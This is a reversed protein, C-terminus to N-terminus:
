ADPQLWTHSGSLRDALSRGGLAPLALLLPLGALAVTLLGALWRLATQGFTLPGGDAGRSLVRALAMGPTRGWFALPMVSYVFSFVLVFLALAPLDDARWRVGLLFAGLIAAATVVLLVGGDLLSAALRHTLAAPVAAPRQRPETDDDATDATTGGAPEGAEVDAWSATEDGGGGPREPGKVDTRSSTGASTGASAGSTPAKAPPQATDEPAAPESEMEWFALEERAAQSGGTDRDGAGRTEGGGTGPQRGKRDPAETGQEGADRDETGRDEAREGEGPTRRLPLDFLSPEEDSKRDTM